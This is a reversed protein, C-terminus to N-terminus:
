DPCQLAVPDTCFGETAGAPVYCVGAGCGTADCTAACGVCSGIDDGPEAVCRNPAACDTCLQAAARCRGDGYCAEGSPCDAQRVCPAASGPEVCYGLDCRAGAGCDADAACDRTAAPQCRGDLCSSGLGCDTATACEACCGELLVLGQAACVSADTSKLVCVICRNATSCGERAQTACDTDALCAVCSCTQPDQLPRQPPCDVPACDVRQCRGDVCADTSACDSGTRCRLRCFAGDCYSEPGCAADSTCKRQCAQEPLQCFTDNPCERDETCRAPPLRCQPPEGICVEGPDCEAKFECLDARCDGEFCRLPGLCDSDQACEPPGCVGQLCAAGAPCQATRQCPLRACQGQSCALEQDALCEATSACPDGPSVSPRGCAALLVTLLVVPHHAARM